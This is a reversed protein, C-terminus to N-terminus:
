SLTAAVTCCRHLSYTTSREALCWTISCRGCHKFDCTPCFMHPLVPIPMGCALLKGLQMLMHKSNHVVFVVQLASM